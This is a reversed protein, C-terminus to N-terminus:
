RRGGRATPGGMMVWPSKSGDQAARSAGRAAREDVATTGARPVRFPREGHRTRNSVAARTTALRGGAGHVPRQRDRRQRRRPEARRAVRSDRAAARSRTFSPTGPRHRRHRLRPRGSPDGSLIAHPQSRAVICALREVRSSAGAAVRRSRQRLGVAAHLPERDAEQGSALRERRVRRSCRGRRAPPCGGASPRRSAALLRRRPAGAAAGGRARGLATTVSPRRARVLRALTEHKLTLPVLVGEREVKGFRDTLHWFLLYLRLELGVTCGIGHLEVSRELLGEGVLLGIDAKDRRGPPTWSGPEVLLVAALAQDAAVEAERRSLGAALGRDAELVPVVEPARIVPRSQIGGAGLGRRVSRWASRAEPLVYPVSALSAGAAVLCYFCFRRHKSAQELTLYLGGLADVAVKAALALSVWPRIREELRRVRDEAGSSTSRSSASRARM